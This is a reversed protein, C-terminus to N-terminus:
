LLIHYPHVLSLPFTCRAMFEDGDSGAPTRSMCRMLVRDYAEAYVQGYLINGRSDCYFHIGLSPSNVDLYITGAVMVGSGNVHTGRTQPYLKIRTSLGGYRYTSVCLLTRDVWQPSALHWGSYLCQLLPYHGWAGRREAVRCPM